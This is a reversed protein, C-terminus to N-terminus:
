CRERKSLCHVECSERCFYVRIEIGEDIIIQIHDDIQPYLMPVNVGFPLSTASKCKRLHERLIDPYMSGSGILGWVEPM